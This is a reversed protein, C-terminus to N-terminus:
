RENRGNIINRAKISMRRYEMARDRNTECVHPDTMRMKLIAICHTLTDSVFAQNTEDLTIM